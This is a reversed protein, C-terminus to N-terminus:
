GKVVAGLGGMLDAFGPFSTDIPSADDVAISEATAQGLVLFSMAIRHDLHVAITAGGKPPKGTGHVALWDEGEEVKVGCAALGRAIAALRDSEKVRLEALGNMRTVGEACAAAMALIPYEDIMAPALDAPIDAGQLGSAEAVLDAVPEGAEVRRNAHHITAGMLRLAELLGVRLPNLGVNTVTVKSGPVLLAAVLPFAASSIDGPVVVDRAILEPQGTLTAARAGDPLDEVTVEAGFHRLILETHDRSPKPEIVTTRGPTNLGALLVASKVQASAVPSEYEIPVLGDSGIVALPLRGGSRSAFAAGMRRLPAMVREMPRSCLSADGSFFSTFPHAAVLGMLLRVGTGSNGLDLLGAPEKLGGVGRGVVRWLGDGLREVEAGLARCAAATCLVDEGELLGAIRTEGIASAGVMLARHSISKDGPVAITGSLGASRSATLPTPM